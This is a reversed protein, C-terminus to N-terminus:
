LGLARLLFAAAGAHDGLKAAEDAARELVAAAAEDRGVASRSVHHGREVPDSATAALRAHIERRAEPLLRDYAVAPLLPHSFVLREGHVAVLGTDLASRLEERGVGARLLLDTSPRLSAAAFEFARRADADLARIGDALVSSLSAAPKANAEGYGQRVLEIAFMPNGRSAHELAELRPRPLQLGLRHRIVEGLATASLPCVSVRRVDDWDGLGLPLDDRSDNETRRAVLVRVPVTGSRRLAFTLALATPRDLWQVDDVILLLDGEAGEVRLVELLGRGLVSPEVTADARGLAAEISARQPGPLGAVADAGVTALLDGLGAYPLEMEGEAPRASFLRLGAASARELAARVLTTKGIGAEGEIVLAAPRVPNADLFEVVDALELDRGVVGGGLPPNAQARARDATM